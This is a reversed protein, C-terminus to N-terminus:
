DCACGCSLEKLLYFHSFKMFAILTFSLMVDVIDFFGYSSDVVIGSAVVNADCWVLHLLSLYPVWAAVQMAGCSAMTVNAKVEPFIMDFARCKM